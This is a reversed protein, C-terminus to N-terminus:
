RGYGLKALAWAANALHQADFGQFGRATALAGAAVAFSYAGPEAAAQLHAMGLFMNSIRQTIFGSQRKQVRRQVGEALRQVGPVGSYGDLCGAEM